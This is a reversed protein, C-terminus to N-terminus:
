DHNLYHLVWEARNMKKNLCDKNWKHRQPETLGRVETRVKTQM